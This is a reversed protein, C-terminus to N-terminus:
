QPSPSPSTDDDRHRRADPHRDAAPHVAVQFHRAPSCRHGPGARHAHGARRRRGRHHLLPHRLSRHVNAVRCRAGIPGLRWVQLLTSLGIVVLSAFVMWVVYSDGRGSAKAVIVPTVLLTASAILSFQLGYGITTRLPPSEDVEYRPNQTAEAAM